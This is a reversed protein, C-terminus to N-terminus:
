KTETYVLTKRIRLQQQDCKEKETQMEDFKRRVAQATYRRQVRM